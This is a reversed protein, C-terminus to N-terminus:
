SINEGNLKKIANQLINIRAERDTKRFWLGYRLYEPNVPKQCYVEPFHLYMEYNEVSIYRTSYLRLLHCLSQAHKSNTIDYMCLKYIAAKQKKPILHIGFFVLLNSIFVRM